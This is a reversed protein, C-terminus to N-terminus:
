AAPRDRVVLAEGIRGFDRGGTQLAAACRRLLRDRATGDIPVASGTDIGPEAADLRGLFYQAAVRGASRVRPDEHEALEAMLRFCGLDLSAEAPKAALTGGIPAAAFLAALLLGRM